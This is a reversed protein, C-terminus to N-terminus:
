GDSATSEIITMIEAGARLEELKLTLRQTELQMMLEQRVEDLTPKMETRELVEIIHFGFPSAVAEQTFANLELAFAADEFAEVMRGRPFFGLDGGLEASGQDDSFQLALEAFDEGENLQRILDQAEILADRVDTEDNSAPAVLIHRARVREELPLQMSYVTYAIELSEDSLQDAMMQAIYTEQLLRDAQFQLAAQYATNDHLSQNVAEEALLRQEIM